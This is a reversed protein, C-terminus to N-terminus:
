EERVKGKQFEKKGEGEEKERGEMEGGREERERERDERRDTWKGTIFQM